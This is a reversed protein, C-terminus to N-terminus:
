MFQYYIWGFLLALAPHIFSFILTGLFKQVPDGDLADDTPIHQYTLFSVTLSIGLALPISLQPLDLLPVVFWGWLIKLVLGKFIATIPTLLLGICALLCGIKEKGTM